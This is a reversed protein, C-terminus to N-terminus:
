KISFGIKINECRLAMGVFSSKNISLFNKLSDIDTKGRLKFTILKPFGKKPLIISESDDGVIGLMKLEPVLYLVNIIKFYNKFNWTM